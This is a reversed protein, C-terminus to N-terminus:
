MHSLVDLDAVPMSEFNDLTQTLDAIQAYMNAKIANTEVGLRTVEILIERASVLAEKIIQDANKQATEVLTNAEKLAIRSLDQAAQEKAQLTSALTDYKLKAEQLTQTLEVNQKEFLAMRAQLQKEQQLLQEMRTDVQYRNYGNKMLDFAQERM